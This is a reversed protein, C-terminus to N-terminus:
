DEATMAVRQREAFEQASNFGRLKLIHNRVAVEVLVALNRGVAVPIRVEPIEVGLIKRTSASMNLRDLEQWKHAFEDAPALHIILKLNKKQKVATDGFLRRVNLIGLGRVEMFDLLINPCRGELTDPSVAFVEVADDAILRHGRTILELALESKGASPEGTILVGLGSVELCVGHLMTSPALAQTMMHALVRMLQPGPEPSTFLPTSTENASDIITAPVAEGNAIFIAAIENCFLNKITTHLDESPINRLYDMEACGLVQLRNPHVFNAHGILALTPKQITDSTLIRGGGARGAIWTLQLREQAQDFLEGVSIPHQTILHDDTHTSHM